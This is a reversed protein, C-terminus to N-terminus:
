KIYVGKDLEGSLANIIHYDDNITELRILKGKIYQEYDSNIYNKMTDIAMITMGNWTMKDRLMQKETDTCSYYEIIPFIPNNNTLPTSKTVSYPLAQINDLQYGFQDKTYDLAEARLIDGYQVDLAGGVASAATGVVAGAIAGYIGGKAGALAGGAGGMLTGTFANFVQQERQIRHSVEMNQLTRDFSEQYNKNQLKYNAWASTQQPLSFDGSCILGRWDNYDQGYLEGFDPNIHIYPNFPQYTCDVNFKSVGGNMVANFEFQGSGTPSVLRYKDCQNAVKIETIDTPINIAYPIDFTFASETAWFMIQLLDDITPEAVDQKYIGTIVPHLLSIDLCYETRVNYFDGTGSWTGDDREHWGPTKMYFNEIYRCPCYPLLQLDYIASQGLQSATQLAVALALSKSTKCIPKPPLDEVNRYLSLNDTYPIAFVDFASDATEYRDTDNVKFKAQGSVDVLDIVYDQATWYVAFSFRNPNGQIDLPTITDTPNRTLNDRMLAYISDSGIANDVSPYDVYTATRVPKILVQYYLGTISDHVIKGQLEEFEQAAIKTPIRSALGNTWFKANLKEITQSSYNVHKSYDRNYIFVYETTYGSSTMSLSTEQYDTSNAQNLFEEYTYYNNNSDRTLNFASKKDHHKYNTGTPGYFNTNIMTSYFIKQPSSFSKGNAYENWEWSDLGEPLDIDAVRETSYELTVWNDNKYKKPLYGVLWPIGSFDKLTDQRLKIQNFSMDEKNYILPTTTTQITAKEIFMPADLLQDYHDAVLDRHLTLTYQGARDRVSEIIFWRSVIENFENVALLYDGTGDYLNVNSGLVVQTNVNDNPVFNYNQQTHLEYSMYEEVTDFKKVIRNYYNNFGSLVYITM